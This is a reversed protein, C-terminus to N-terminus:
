ERQSNTWDWSVFSLSLPIPQMMLIVTTRLSSIQRAYSLVTFLFHYRSKAGLIQLLSNTDLVIKPHDM